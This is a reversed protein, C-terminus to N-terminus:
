LLPRLPVPLPHGEGSAFSGQLHRSGDNRAPEYIPGTLGWSFLSYDSIKLGWVQLDPGRLVCM